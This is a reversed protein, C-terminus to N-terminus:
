PINFIYPSNRFFIWLFISTSQWFFRTCCFIGYMVLNLFKSFWVSATSRYRMFQCGWCAWRLTSIQRWSIPLGTSSPSNDCTIFFPDIVAVRIARFLPETGTLRGFDNNFFDTRSRFLTSDRTSNQLNLESLTQELHSHLRHPDKNEVVPVLEHFKSVSSGLM